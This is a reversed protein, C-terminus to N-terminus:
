KKPDSTAGSKDPQDKPEELRTLNWQQTAGNEFHLLVGTEDKTLNFVGTQMVPWEKGFPSWAARQSDKDITGQIEVANDASTDQFTGAIIGERTVALQIFM